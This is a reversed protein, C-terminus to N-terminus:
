LLPSTCVHMHMSMHHQITESSRLFHKNIYIKKPLGPNPATQTQPYTDTLATLLLTCWLLQLERLLPGTLFCRPLTELVIWRATRVPRHLYGSMWGKQPQTCFVYLDWWKEQSDMLGHKTHICVSTFTHACSGLVWKGVRSALTTDMMTRMMALSSVLLYLSFSGTGIGTSSM